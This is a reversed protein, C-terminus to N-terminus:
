QIEGPGTGDTACYIPSTMKRPRIKEESFQIREGQSGRKKDVQNRKRSEKSELNKRSSHTKM